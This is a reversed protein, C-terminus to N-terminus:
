ADLRLGEAAALWQAARWGPVGVTDAHRVCLLDCPGCQQIGFRLRRARDMRGAPAHDRGPLMRAGRLLADWGLHDTDPLLYLRVRTTGADDCLSLSERPGDPTVACAHCLLAPRALTQLDPTDMSADDPCRAWLCLVSGLTALALSFHAADATLWRVDAGVHSSRSLPRAMLLCTM